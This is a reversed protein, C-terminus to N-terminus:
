QIKKVFNIQSFHFDTAPSPEHRERATEVGHCHFTM